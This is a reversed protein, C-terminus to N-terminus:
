EAEPCRYFTLDPLHKLDDYHAAGIVLIAPQSSVRAVARAVAVALWSRAASYAEFIRRIEKLQQAVYPLESPSAGSKAEDLRRVQDFITEVTLENVQRADFGYVTMSGDRLVATGSSVFGEHVFEGYKVPEPLLASGRLPIGEFVVRDLGREDRLRQITAVIRRQCKLVRAETEKRFREIPHEHVQLIVIVREGPAPATAKPDPHRPLMDGDAYEAMYGAKMGPTCGATAMLVLAAFARWPLAFPIRM